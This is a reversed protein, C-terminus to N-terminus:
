ETVIVPIKINAAITPQPDSTRSYLMNLSIYYSGIDETDLPAFFILQLYMAEPSTTGKDDKYKLSQRFLTRASTGNEHMFQKTLTFGLPPRVQQFLESTVGVAAMIEGMEIDLTKNAETIEAYDSVKLTIAPAICRTQYVKVLATKLVHNTTDNRDTLYINIDVPVFAEDPKPFDLGIPEMTWAANGKDTLFFYGAFEGGLKCSDVIADEMDFKTASGESIACPLLRVSTAIPTNNLEVYSVAPSVDIDVMDGTLKIRTNLNGFTASTLAVRRNDADTYNLVLTFDIDGYYAGDLIEIEAIWQGECTEGAQNKYPTVGVLSCEPITTVYSAKTIQSRIADLRLDEAQVIYNSPNVRFPVKLTSGNLVTIESQLLTIGTPYPRKLTDIDDKMEKCGPLVATLLAIGCYLLAKKMTTM